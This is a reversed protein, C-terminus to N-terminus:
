LVPANFASDILPQILPALQAKVQERSMSALPELRVIYRMTVVGHMVSLVIEIRQAIATGAGIAAAVPGLVETSIYARFRQSTEADTALARM